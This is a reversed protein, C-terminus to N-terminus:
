PTVSKLGVYLVMYPIALKPNVNHDLCDATEQISVIANKIDCIAYSDVNRYLQDLQSSCTVLGPMGIKVMMLDRWWNVWLQIEDKVEENNESWKSVLQDAYKLQSKVSSEIVAAINALRARIRVLNKRDNEKQGEWEIGSQALKAMENAESIDIGTQQTLFQVTDAVGMKNLRIKQCRSAVTPLLDQESSAVLIYLVNPEPEELLKLLANSTHLTLKKAEGIVFVRYRAEYPRLSAKNRIERAVDKLIKANASNENFLHSDILDVDPHTGLLIKSCRSCVGCPPKTDTCNVTQAMKIAFADKGSNHPGLVLYAHHIKGILFANVFSNIKTQHDVSSWM